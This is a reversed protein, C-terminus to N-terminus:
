RGAEIQHHRPPPSSLENAKDYIFWVFGFITVAGALIAALRSTRRWGFLGWSAILLLGIASCIGAVVLGPATVQKLAVLLVAAVAAAVATAATMVGIVFRRLQQLEVQVRGENEVRERHERELEQRERELENELKVRKRRELELHAHHEQAMRRADAADERSSAALQEAADLKDVLEVMKRELASDVCRRREDADEAREIEAVFATDALVESALRADANEYQEVRGVVEEVVWEPLPRLMPICASTLLDVITKDLDETRPVFSRMVQLWASTAVCFPLQVQSGDLTELAYPPLKGDRTLFWHGANTFRLHGDGRLREILLRHKVDHKLVIPDDNGRDEVHPKLLEVHAEILDGERDIEATGEDVVDVGRSELLPEFHEHFDFFDQPRTGKDRYAAWCVAVIGGERRRALVDALNRPPLRRAMVHERALRISARLEAVTWPTVALTCGLARTLDLLRVTSITEHTSALGILAYVVNTDLYVRQGSVSDQMLEHAAPDLTLVTLFYATNLRNALYSLQEPTPQRVFAHLEVERIETLAPARAPLASCTITEIEEFVQKARPHEPYLVLAAEVGHRVVIHELWTELDKILHQFDAERLNPWKAHVQESWEGFALERVNESDAKLAELEALTDAMLAFGEGAARAKGEEILLARAARIEDLEVDLGWQRKFALQVSELSDFAGGTEAEAAAALVLDRLMAELNRGEDSFPRYQALRSVAKDLHKGGV